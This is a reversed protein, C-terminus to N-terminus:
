QKILEEALNGMSISQFGYKQNLTQYHKLIDELFSFNEDQHAGFNHPHWWLHYLKGSQAAKTMSRKIRNKRFKELSRLRPSYPRLFRSSPINVLGEQNLKKVEYINHGSINIYSDLLRFARSLKLKLGKASPDFIFASENGRFSILGHNKLTALYEQNYQNRPFVFSKLDIEYKKATVIATALDEEFQDKTQGEELCYYHCFTHSGIEQGALKIKDILSKGFHFPDEKETNGVEISLDHYPSLNKNVYSPQKKPLSALMEEKTDFFLLGVTAFTAEVGYKEFLNLLRPIVNRVGLLETKYDEARKLDRVGWHIEFDLSIVFKGNQM